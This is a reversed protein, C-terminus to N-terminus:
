TRHLATGRDDRGGAPVLAGGALDDALPARSGPFSAAARQEHIRLDAHAQDAITAGARATARGEPTDDTLVGIRRIADAHESGDYSVLISSATM